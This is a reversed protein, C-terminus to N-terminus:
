VSESAYRRRVNGQDIRDGAPLTEGAQQFARRLHNGDRVSEGLNVATCAAPVHNRDWISNRLDGRSRALFIGVPPKRETVYPPTGSVFASRQDLRDQPCSREIMQLKRHDIPRHLRTRAALPNPAMRGDQKATGIGM